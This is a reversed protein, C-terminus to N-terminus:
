GQALQVAAALGREGFGSIVGRCAASLPSFTQGDWGEGRVEICPGRRDRVAAAVAELSDVELGDSWIVAPNATARLSVILDLANGYTLVVAREIAELRGARGAPALLAVDM